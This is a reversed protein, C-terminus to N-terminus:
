ERAGVVSSTSTRMVRVRTGGTSTVPAVPRTPRTTTSRSMSAPTGTRARVCRESAAAVSGAFTSTTVPSRVTGSDSSAPSRPTPATKRTQVAGGGVAGATTSRRAVWARRTTKREDRVLGRVGEELLRIGHRHEVGLDLPEDRGGPELRRDDPRPHERRVRQGPPRGRNAGAPDDPPRVASGLRCGDVVAVDCGDRRPRQILVSMSSAVVDERAGLRQTLCLLHADDTVDQPAPDCELLQRRVLESALRLSAPRARDHVHQEGRPARRDSLGAYMVEVTDSM